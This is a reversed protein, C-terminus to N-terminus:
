LPLVHVSLSNGDFGNEGPTAFLQRERIKPGGVQSLLARGSGDLTISENGATLEMGQLTGPTYNVVLAYGRPSNCYEQLTGLQFTNAAEVAVPLAQMRASCSMAVRARLRFTRADRPSTEAQQAPASASVSMSTDSANPAVAMAAVLPVALAPATLM